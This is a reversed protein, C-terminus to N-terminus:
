GRLLFPALVLGLGGLGLIVAHLQFSRKGLNALCFRLKELHATGAYKPEAVKRQLDVIQPHFVLASHLSLLLMAAVPLELFLSQAEFHRDLFAWYLFLGSIGGWGIGWRDAGISPIKGKWFAFLLGAVWFGLGALACIGFVSV